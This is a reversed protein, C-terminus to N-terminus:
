EKDNEIPKEKQQNEKIVKLFEPNLTNVCTRLKKELNFIEGVENTALESAALEKRLGIVNPDDDGLQSALRDVANTMTELKQKPIKKARFRSNFKAVMIYLGTLNESIENRIGDVKALFETDEKNLKTKGGKETAEVLTKETQKVMKDSGAMM